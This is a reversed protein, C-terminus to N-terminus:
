HFVRCVAVFWVLTRRLRCVKFDLFNVFLLSLIM